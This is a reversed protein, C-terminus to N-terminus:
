ATVREGARPRAPPVAYSGVPEGWGMSRKPSALILPTLRASTLPQPAGPDQPCCEAAARGDQIQTHGLVPTFGDWSGIGAHDCPLPAPFSRKLGGRTWPGARLLVLGSSFTWGLMHRPCTWTLHSALPIHCLDSTTTTLTFPPWTSCSMHNPSLSRSPLTSLPTLCRGPFCSVLGM